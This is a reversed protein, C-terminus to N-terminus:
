ITPGVQITEVPASIRKPEFAPNSFLIMVNTDDHSFGGHEALKSTSGTYTVGVNPAVAIDPTRPDASPRPRRLTTAVMISKASERPQLM